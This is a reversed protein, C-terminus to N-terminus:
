RRLGGVAVFLAAGVFTEFAATIGLGALRAVLAPASATRPLFEPACRTTTELIAAMVLIKKRLLSERALLGAAADLYAVARPHRACFALLAEDRPDPPRPLLTRCAAVYREVWEPEPRQGLLYGTFLLAEARLAEEDELELDPRSM